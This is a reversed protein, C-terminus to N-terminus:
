AVFTLTLDDNDGVDLERFGIQIYQGPENTLSSFGWCGGFAATPVAKGFAGAWVAGDLADAYFYWFRNLDAPDNAYVLACAGHDINWWGMLEFDGGDGGCTEPSYFMIATSIPSPYANCLRLGM